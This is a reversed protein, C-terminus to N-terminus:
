AQSKTRRSAMNMIPIATTTITDRKNMTPVLIAAMIVRMRLILITIVEVVLRTDMHILLIRRISQTHIRRLITTVEKMTTDKIIDVTHRITVTSAERSRDVMDMILIMTDTVPILHLDTTRRMRHRQTPRRIHHMRHITIQILPRNQSWRHDLDIPHLTDRIDDTDECALLRPFRMGELVALRLNHLTITGLVLHLIAAEVRAAVLVM